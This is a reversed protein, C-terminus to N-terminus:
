LFHFNGSALAYGPAAVVSNWTTEKGSCRSNQLQRPDIFPTTAKEWSYSFTQEMEDTVRNGCILMYAYVLEPRAGPLGNVHVYKGDQQLALQHDKPTTPSVRLQISPRYWDFPEPSLFASEVTLTLLGSKLLPEYTDITLSKGPQLAITSYIGPCDDIGLPVPFQYDSEKGGTIDIGSDYGCISRGFPPGLRFTNPTHNVVSIHVSLMERLFYPGPPIKASLQLGDKEISFTGSKEVLIHDRNSLSFVAVALLLGVILWTILQKKLPVRPRGPRSLLLGSVYQFPQM